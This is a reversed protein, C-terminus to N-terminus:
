SSQGDSDQDSTDSETDANEPEATGDGNSDGDGPTSDETDNGGRDSDASRRDGDRTDSGRDSSTNDPSRDRASEGRDTDNAAPGNEPGRDTHNGSEAQSGNAPPGNVDGPGPSGSPPGVGGPPGRPADTINRAAAAVEPGTTNGARNRLEALGETSVGNRTATANTREVHSRINAAQVRLASARATYEAESLNGRRDELRETREELRDLRAELSATRNRVEAGPDDSTNARVEWLGADVSESADTASAQAFSSVQVGFETENDDAMQVAEVGATHFAVSPVALAGAGVVVLVCVVALQRSNM